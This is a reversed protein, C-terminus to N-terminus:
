NWQGNGQFIDDRRSMPSEICANECQKVSNLALGFCDQKSNVTGNPSDSFQFVSDKSLSLILPSPSKQWFAVRM